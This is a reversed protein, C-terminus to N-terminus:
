GFPRVQNGDLKFPYRNLRTVTCTEPPFLGGRSTKVLPLWWYQIQARYKTQYYDYITTEKGTEKLKFKTNRCNAGEAIKEDFHFESITYVRGKDERHTIVFRLKHLRKLAKFADCPAYKGPIATKVPQLVSRYVDYQNNAWKPNMTNLFNRMVQELKQGVFFTQNSIDVNIGLGLGGPRNINQFSVTLLPDFNM